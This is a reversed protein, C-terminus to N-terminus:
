DGLHQSVNLTDRLMAEKKVKKKKMTYKSIHTYSVLIPIKVHACVCMHIHICRCIFILLQCQSNGEAM